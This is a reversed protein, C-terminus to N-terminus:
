FAENISFIIGSQGRGIGYDVRINVKKKFEWRYGIGFNPLAHGKFIQGPKNFVEGVGAWIVAGSRRYLHQRLEVTADAACKDNYRGEWYGRMTHSGGIKSMMGWPTNGYTLRLHLRTAIVGGKWAEHYYNLIFDSLSFAYRNGLFKPAFLQDALVYIGKSANFRYDRTDYELKLGVSTTLTKLRQYDWLGPDDVDCARLYDMVVHPGVFLPTKNIGQMYAADVAAHLRKYETENANNSNATYGIGWYKDPASEFSVDYILYRDNGTFYHIGDIGFKYYGTIAVNAYINIQGPQIDSNFNRNRYLAAAIVGISLKTESSYSPGGIFSIDFRKTTDPVNTESFYDIVRNFINKKTHKEPISDTSDAMMDASGQLLFTAIIILRVRRM